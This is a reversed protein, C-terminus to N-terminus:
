ASVKTRVMRGKLLESLSEDGSCKEGIKMKEM